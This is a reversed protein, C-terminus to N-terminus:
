VHIKWSLKVDSMKSPYFSIQSFIQLYNQYWVKYIFKLIEFLLCLILKKTIKPQFEVKQKLLRAVRLKHVKYQYHWGYVPQPNKLLPITLAHFIPWVRRLLSVLVGYNGYWTCVLYLWNTNQFGFSNGVYLIAIIILFIIKEM